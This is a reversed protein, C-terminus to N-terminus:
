STRCAAPTVARTAATATLARPATMAARHILLSLSSLHYANIPGCHAHARRNAKHRPGRKEGSQRIAHANRQAALVGDTQQGQTRRQANRYKKAHRPEHHRLPPRPGSQAICPCEKGRAADGGVLAERYPSLHDKPLKWDQYAALRTKVADADRKGAAEVLDRGVLAGCGAGVM